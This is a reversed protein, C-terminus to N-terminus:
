EGEKVMMDYLKAKLMMIEQQLRANENQLRDNEGHLKKNIVSENEYLQFNKNSKDGLGKILADYQEESKKYQEVKEELERTKKRESDLNKQMYDLSDAQSNWFDNAINDAAIDLCGKFAQGIYSDSGGVSEIISRIQELAKREEQKTSM